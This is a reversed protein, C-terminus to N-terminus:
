SKTKRASRKTAKTPQTFESAVGLIHDVGNAFSGEVSASLIGLVQNLQQDSEFVVTGETRAQMLDTAMRNKVIELLDFTARGLKDRLSM